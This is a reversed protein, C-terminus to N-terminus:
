ARTRTSYFELMSPPLCARFSKLYQVDHEEIWDQDEHKKFLDNLEWADLNSKVTKSLRSNLDELAGM